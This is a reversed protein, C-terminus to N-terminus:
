AAEEIALEGGEIMNAVGALFETRVNMTEGPLIEVVKVRPIGLHPSEVHAAWPTELRITREIPKHQTANRVRARPAGDLLDEIEGRDVMARTGGTLVAGDVLAVLEGAALTREFRAGAVEFHIGTASKRNNRLLM